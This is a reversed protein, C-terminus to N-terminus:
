SRSRVRPTATAAPRTVSTVITLPLEPRVIIAAGVVLRAELAEVILIMTATAIIERVSIAKVVVLVVIAEAISPATAEVVPSTATSPATIATASEEMTLLAEAVKSVPSVESVSSRCRAVPVTVSTIRGIWHPLDVLSLFLDVLHQFTALVPNFM